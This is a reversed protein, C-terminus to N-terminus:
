HSYASVWASKFLKINIKNNEYVPEYMFSPFFSENFSLNTKSM